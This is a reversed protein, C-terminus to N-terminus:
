APPPDAEASSPGIVGDPGSLEGCELCVSSAEDTTAMAAAGCRPCVALEDAGFWGKLERVKPHAEM